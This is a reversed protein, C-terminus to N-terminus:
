PGDVVVRLQGPRRNQPPLRVQTNNIFRLVLARSLDTGSHVSFSGWPASVHRNVGEWSQGGTFIGLTLGRGARLFDIACFRQKPAYYSVGGMRKRGKTTKATIDPALARIGQDLRHFLHQTREPQRELYRDLGPLHRSRALTLPSTHIVTQLELIELPCHPWDHEWCAILDSTELASAQTQLDSSKYACTVAVREWVRRTQRRVMYHPAHPRVEEVQLRLDEVKAAFLAIVGMENIAAYIFGRINILDGVLSSSKPM